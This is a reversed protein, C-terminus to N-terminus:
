VSVKDAGDWTNEPMEDELKFDNYSLWDEVKGMNKGWLDILVFKGQPPSDRRGSTEVGYKYGLPELSVKVNTIKLEWPITETAVPKMQEWDIESAVNHTYIFKEGANYEKIEKTISQSETEPKEVEPKTEREVKSSKGKFVETINAVLPALKGRKHLVVGTGVSAVIILAIVIILLPIQIFGKQNKM